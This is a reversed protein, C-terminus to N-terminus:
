LFYMPVFVWGRVWGGVCLDVADFGVALMAYPLVSGLLVSSFVIISCSISIAMSNEYGGHFIWVRVWATWGLILGLWVAVALQKKAARAILGQATHTHVHM